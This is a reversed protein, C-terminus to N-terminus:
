STERPSSSSRRRKPTSRTATDESDAQAAAKTKARDYGRLDDPRVDEISREDVDGPAIHGAAILNRLWQAAYPDIENYYAAM